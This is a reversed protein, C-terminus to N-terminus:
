EATLIEYFIEYFYPISEPPGYAVRNFTAGIPNALGGHREVLPWTPALPHAKPLTVWHSGAARNMVEGVYAGFRFLTEGIM